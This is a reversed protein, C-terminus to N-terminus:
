FISEWKTPQRKVRKIDKAICFNKIKINDLKDIKEKM